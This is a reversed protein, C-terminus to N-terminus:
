PQPCWDSFHVRSPGGAGASAISRYLRQAEPCKGQQLLIGIRRSGTRGLDNRLSRVFPASRGALRQASALADAAAGLDNRDLASAGRAALTRARAHRAAAPSPGDDDKDDDDDRSRPDDDTQARRDDGSDDGDSAPRDSGDDGAGDEDDGAAPPTVVGTPLRGTPLGDGASGTTGGVGAGPESPDVSGPTESADAQAQDNGRTAWIALGAGAGLVVLFLVAGLAVWRTVGGAGGGLGPLTTPGTTADGGSGPFSGSGSQGWRGSMPTAPQNGTQPMPASPTGVAARPHGAAMPAPTANPHFGGVSTAMTWAAAPDDFGTFERLFTVVDQQRRDRDKELARMVAMRKPPALMSGTPFSELPAPQETLHKTAWEWPTRGDFPLRGLLMEYTMVGLSYIDSRADLTQGSFQEPSMYPPTGLVMGQKTLKASEDDEAESRKAIGFDLVKVFDTAGGRETLLVNEPKLDRHVIGRQHAEHLSGCIQILLKDVRDPAMAGRELAHALSEGQIYEMVIFLTHDELEGFDFFQVTNPHSLDIVTQCERHFRAVLQPDRILEPHLTKIAVERTAQGMRQEALYVKGMGGEGLVRIITYRDLLTQGLLPDDARKQESDM